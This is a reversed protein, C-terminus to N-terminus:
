AATPLADRRRPTLESPRPLQGEAFMAALAVKPLQAPHEFLLYRPQWRPSSSRTSATCASSRSGATASACCAGSARARAPQRARAALARLRRLEALVGRHRARRAPAAAEVVLFDTVGNPTDRDRRMFGLSVVAAGSRGPRLAPLRARAGDADRALSSSRTPCRARRRARRPGDLLRARARRRALPRQGGRLERSAPRRRPRGRRAARRHLRQARRPQRGQAPEQARRRLPGDRRDSLIAEDGLYMRRLGARPAALPSRARQRRRRRVRARPARADARVSPSCRRLDRRAARGPRRGDAARRGRHPLRRRRPRRAVLPAAPRPAAQVREAHRRRPPARPGAARARERADSFVRVRLPAFLM